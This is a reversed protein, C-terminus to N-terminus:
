STGHNDVTLWCELNLHVVPQLKDVLIRSTVVMCIYNSFIDGM